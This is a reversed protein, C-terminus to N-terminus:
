DNGVMQDKMWLMAWSEPDHALAKAELLHKTGSPKSCPQDMFSELKM